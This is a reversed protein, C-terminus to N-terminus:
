KWNNMIPKYEGNELEFLLLGSDEEGNKIFFIIETIGANKMITEKKVTLEVCEYETSGVNELLNMYVTMTRSNDSNDIISDIKMEPYISQIENILESYKIQSEKKLEEIRKEEDQKIKNKEEVRKNQLKSIMEPTLIEMSNKEVHIIPESSYLVKNSIRAKYIIIKDGKNIENGNKDIMKNGKDKPNLYVLFIPTSVGDITEMANATIYDHNRIKNKDLDTIQLEDFYVYAYTINCKRLEDIEGKEIRQNDIPKIDENISIQKNSVQNNEFDMEEKTLRMKNTCGTFYVLSLVVLIISVIKKQM